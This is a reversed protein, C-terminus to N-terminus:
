LRSGLLRAVLARRFALHRQTRRMGLQAHFRAVGAEVAAQFARASSTLGIINAAGLGLTETTTTTQFPTNSFGIPGFGEENFQAQGSLDYYQTVVDSLQVCGAGLGRLTYTTTTTADTEGFVPDVTAKTDVLQHVPRNLLNSSVKCAAPVSSAGNDILNETALVVPQPYWVPVFFTPFIVPTANPSPTTEVLAAPATITIGIQNPGGSPNPQPASVTYSTDAPIELPFSYSGSGDANVIAQSTTFGSGSVIPANQATDTYSGNANVARVDTAGDPDTESTTEAASNAPLIAGAVEPLIDVLGNGSAIVDLYTVGSSTTVSSGAFDIDTSAGNKAYAYYEDSKSTTTELGGNLTDTEAVFFDFPNLVNQFKPIGSVTVTQTIATTLTQSNTPNPSPTIAGAPVPPRVFTEVMTGAYSFSDGNAAPRYSNNTPTPAPPASGGGGGGGGCAALVAACFCVGLASLRKRL